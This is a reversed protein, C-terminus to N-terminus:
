ARHLPDMVQLSEAFTMFDIITSGTKAGNESTKERMKEVKETDIKLHNKSRTKKPNQVLFAGLITRRFM